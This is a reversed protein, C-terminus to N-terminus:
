RLRAELETALRPAAPRLNASDMSSARGAIEAASSCFRSRSRQNAFRNYLRTQQRDLGEVGLRQREAQYANALLARHRTLLRDYGPRVPTMGGSRCALSAVNLGARLTLLAQNPSAAASAPAPAAPSPKGPRAAPRYPAPYYPPPLRHVKASRAPPRDGSMCALLPLVAAAALCCRVMRLCTAVRFAGAQKSQM